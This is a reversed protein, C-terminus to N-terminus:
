LAHLAWGSLYLGLGFVAHNILSHVRASAPNPTRSAAIGAGMGPQMVLFPAAVTVLGLALAPGPTPALLWDQGQIAILLAAFAIGILYHASWGILSEGPIPNAAGIAEHRFRGRPMHGLWRGMMAYSPLPMGLLPKRAVGWLDMLATAGVGILLVALLTNM